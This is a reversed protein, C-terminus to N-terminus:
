TTNTKLIRTIVMLYKSSARSHAGYVRSLLVYSIALFTFAFILGVPVYVSGGFVASGLLAGVAFGALFAVLPVGYLIYAARLSTKVPIDVIVHDGKSAGVHNIAEAIMTDKDVKVCCSGCGECYRSQRLQVKATDGTVALVIGEEERKSTYSPYDYLEPLEANGMIEGREIRDNM